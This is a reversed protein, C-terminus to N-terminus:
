YAVERQELYSEFEFYVQQTISCKKSELSQIGSIVNQSGCLLKNVPDLVCLCADFQQWTFVSQNM